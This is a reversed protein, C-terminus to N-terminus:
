DSWIGVHLACPLCSSSNNPHQSSGVDEVARRNVGNLFDNPTRCLPEKGGQLGFHHELNTSYTSSLWTSIACSLASLSTQLPMEEPAVTQEPREGLCIRTLSHPIEGSQAVGKLLTSIISRALKRTELAYACHCLARAVETSYV